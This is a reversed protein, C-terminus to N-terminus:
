YHWNKTYCKASGKERIQRLREPNEDGKGAEGSTMYIVTVKAGKNVHAILSGGCGLIDDDPHPSFVLVRDRLPVYAIRSFSPNTVIISLFFIGVVFRMIYDKRFCLQNM